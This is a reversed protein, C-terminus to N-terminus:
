GGASPCRRCSSRRPAPLWFWPRPACWFRGRPTDVLATKGDRLTATGTILRTGAKRLLTSVGNNLREVIGNKWGVTAGLDVSAGKASIGMEPAASLTTIRHFEDAAHILAKSPICGM